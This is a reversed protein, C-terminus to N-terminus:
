SSKPINLVAFFITLLNLNNEQKSWRSSCWEPFFGIISIVFFM